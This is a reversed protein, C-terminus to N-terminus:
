RADARPALLIPVYRFLFLAYAALWLPMSMMMASHGAPAFVRLATGLTILVFALTMGGPATLPRGTHGLAVRAMVGLVLTGIAGVTLAHLGADLWLSQGLAALGLLALGVPIWGFGVHLIWLLPERGTHWGQWRALRGAQALAAALGLWGTFIDMPRLVFGAMFIVTVIVAGFDWQDFSQMGIRAKPRNQKLWNLTFNPIIRGGVLLILGVILMLGARLTAEKIALNEPGSLFFVAEVTVFALLTPVIKYNRSNRSVIVERAILVTLLSWFMLSFSGWVAWGSPGPLFASLRAAIWIATILALPIGSVPARQTWTAVATLLFGAIAAGAFGFLMEHGHHLRPSPIEPWPLHQVLHLGWGLLSLVSFSAALLFFPRFALSCLTKMHPILGRRPTPHSPAGDEAVVAMMSGAPRATALGRQYAHEAALAHLEELDESSVDIFSGIERLAFALDEPAIGQAHPPKHMLAHSAPAHRQPWLLRNIILSLILLVLVNIGVPSLAYQFGLDHVADGGIVATLATAGGPPHLCHLFSMALIALAVASASAMWPDPVWRYCSVGILASVLHGGVFPWPQTLPSHPAAFLLAASAGMSAVMLPALGPTVHLAIWGLGLISLFAGLTAYIKDRPSIYPQTPFLGHLRNSWGTKSM